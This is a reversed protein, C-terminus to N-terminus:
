VFAWAADILLKTPNQECWKRIWADVAANDNKIGNPDNLVWVNTASFFGDLWDM